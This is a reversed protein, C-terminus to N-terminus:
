RRERLRINTISHAVLQRPNYFFARRRSSAPKWYFVGTFTAHVTRQYGGSLPTGVAEDLAREQDKPVQDTSMLQVGAKCKEDTLVFGHHWDTLVDASFRVKKGDHTAPSAVIECLPTLSHGASMAFTPLLAAGIVAFLKM